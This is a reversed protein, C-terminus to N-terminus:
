SNDMNQLEAGEGRSVEINILLDEHIEVVEVFNGMLQAYEDANLSHPLSLSPSSTYIAM